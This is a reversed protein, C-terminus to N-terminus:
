EFYDDSNYSIPHIIFKPTKDKNTARKLCANRPVRKPTSPPSDCQDTSTASDCQDPADGYEGDIQMCGLEDEPDYAEVQWDDVNEVDITDDIPSSVLEKEVDIPLSAMRPIIM